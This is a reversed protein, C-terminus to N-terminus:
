ENWKKDIFENSIQEVGNITVYDLDSDIEDSSSNPNNWNKDIFDNNIVAKSFDINDPNLGGSPGSPPPIPTIYKSWLDYIDNYSISHINRMVETVKQGNVFWYSIGDIDKVYPINTKNNKFSSLYEKLYGTRNISDKNLGRFENLLEGIGAIADNDGFNNARNFVINQAEGNVFRTGIRLGYSTGNGYIEDNSNFKTVSDGVFEYSDGDKKVGKTLYFGLPINQNLKSFKEDKVIVNSEGSTDIVDYLVLVCDFETESEESKTFNNFEDLDIIINNTGNHTYPTDNNDIYCYIESYGVGNYENYSHTNIECIFFSPDKDKDENKSVLEEIFDAIRNKYSINDGTDKNVNEDSFIKFIDEANKDGGFKFTIFRSPTPVYKAGMTHHKTLDAAYRPLLIFNGTSKSINVSSM